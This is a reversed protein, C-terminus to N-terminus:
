SGQSGLIAELKKRDNAHAMAAGAVIKGEQVLKVLYDDMSIMGVNKSTQIVTNIQHTKFERIMNAISPINIMIELSPVRGWGDSRVVLQQAVVARVCDALISRISAQKQPPYYEVLREISKAASATHMTSFVLHGTSAANLVLDITKLDRMEGLMIIDPDERLSAKLAREFSSCHLHIQRQQMMSSKNPHVHEIPDEITFINKSQERNIIDLIAAITTSKGSGTPGTILVLGDLYHAMSEIVPPLNLEKLTPIERPIVRFVGDIGERQYFINCRFRQIQGAHPLELAFDLNKTRELVKVQKETLMEGLLAVTDDSSLPTREVVVLEGYLRMMPPSGVSIHLDSGGREVVEKLYQVIRQM